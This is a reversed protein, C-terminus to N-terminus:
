GDLRAVTYPGLRVTGGIIREADRDWFGDPNRVADVFSDVDLTRFRTGPVAVTVPEPRLNALWLADRVALAAIREPASNEVARLESGARPGLGALVHYVPYVAGDPQEGEAQEDYWPVPFRARTHIVGRPGFPAHMVLTDIGASSWAAIQALTFAAGFLGRQRADVDPPPDAKAQPVAPGTANPNFRMRLTIPGCWLPTGPCLARATTAQDILVSPTEMVSADDDAHVTPNVTWFVFDAPIPPTRNFETFFADTGAGIRAAPFIRRAEEILAADAGVLAVADPSLGSAALAPLEGSRRRLMVALRAGTAAHAARLATIDGTEAGPVDLEALLLPLRMAVLRGMATENCRYDLPQGGTALMPLTGASRDLVRVSVPDKDHNSTSPRRQSAIADRSIRVHVSQRVTEGDRIAYPFPLTLPRSYTKFSADSWNRQDEMEFVEGEFRTEIMLGASPRHVITQMALFPQHPSILKPFASETTNGGVHGVRVPQGAYAAPHLVVFGARNTVFDGVATAEASATLDTESAEVVVRCLLRAAGSGMEASLSLQTQRDRRDDREIRVAPAYTGWDADRVVFAISRLLEVGDYSIWRLALGDQTFSLRGVTVERPQAAPALTEGYLRLSIDPTAAHDSM